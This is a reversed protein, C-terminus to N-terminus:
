LCFSQYTGALKIVQLGRQCYRKRSLLFIFEGAELIGLLVRLGTLTALNNIGTYAITVAGWLFM